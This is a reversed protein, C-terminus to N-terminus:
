NKVPLWSKIDDATDQQGDEGFSYVALGRVDPPLNAGCLMHFPHQWPDLLEQMSTYPKLEDLSDPCAEKAHDRAWMPFAEDALQRVQVAALDIKSHELKKMTKDAANNCGAAVVVALLMRM